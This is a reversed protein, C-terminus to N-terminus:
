RVTVTDGDAPLEAVRAKLSESIWSNLSAGSRAAELFVSRHLAPDIRLVLKGSFPKDPARGSETCQELYDDIAERFASKIGGVSDAEFSIVDRTNLVRGHLIGDREDFSIIAEYDRYRM